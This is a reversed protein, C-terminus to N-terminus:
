GFPYKVLEEKSTINSLSDFSLNLNGLSAEEQNVSLLQCLENNSRQLRDIEAKLMDIMNQSSMEKTKSGM